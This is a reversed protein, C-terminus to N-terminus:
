ATERCFQMKDHISILRRTRKFDIFPYVRLQRFHYSNCHKLIGYYSMVSRATKINMHLSAQKMKRAIRVMLKKVLMTYRHFFRYSLFRLGRDEVLFYQWMKVSMGEKALEERLYRICNCLQRKNASVFAIDDAYRTFKVRPFLRKCEHDLHMLAVNAFWHSSPHGIAIGVGTESMNDLIKQAVKIFREDKIIRRLNKIVLSHPISDYFKRIDTVAGYKNKPNRLWKQLAKVSRIQGARPICACNFYYNRKILIPTAINLWAQQIAQDKLCPIKLHRVKGRYSDVIDIERNKAFVIGHIQVEQHLAKGYLEANNKIKQAMENDPKNKGILKEALIFNEETMFKEYLHGVRKM